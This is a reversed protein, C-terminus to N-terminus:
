AASGDRIIEAGDAPEFVSVKASAVTDGELVIRCDFMGLGNDGMMECRTEIRLTTGGPFSPCRAEYRRSGLLFGIRPSGGRRMARAGAWVSVTQAMYEIGVWVPVAGDQVFLGDLPVDVETVARDDDVEILRDLLRM